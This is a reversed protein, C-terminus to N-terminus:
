SALHGNMDVCFKEAEDFQLAFPFVVIKDKSGCLGAADPASNDSCVGQNGSSSRTLQALERRTDASSCGGYGSSPPPPAPAPADDGGGMAVYPFVVIILILLGAAALGGKVTPNDLDLRRNLCVCQLKQELSTPAEEIEKMADAMTGGAGPPPAAPEAGASEVSAAPNEATYVSEDAATAM